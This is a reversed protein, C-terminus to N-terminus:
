LAFESFTVLLTLRSNMAFKVVISKMSSFLIKRRGSLGQLLPRKVGDKDIRSLILELLIILKVSALSMSYSATPLHHM